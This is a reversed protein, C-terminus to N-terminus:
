LPQYFKYLSFMFIIILWTKFSVCNHDLISIILLLQFIEVFFRYHNQWLLNFLSFFVAPVVRWCDNARNMSLWQCLEEVTVLMIRWCNSARNNLLPHCSQEATVTMIRWCDSARNNLLPQCSEEVIVPMIKWCDKARNNLLWLCSKEKKRHQCFEEVTINVTLSDHWTGLIHCM